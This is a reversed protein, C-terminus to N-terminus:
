LLEELVEAAAHVFQPCLTVTLGQDQAQQLGAPTSIDCGLLHRCTASGCRAQFRRVFDQVRQYTKEKADRDDAATGGHKLGLVMVAGTVAGCTEALRGMGAGFGSAIRLATARPLGLDEAYAVLIAQSCSYGEKFTAVAAAHRNM